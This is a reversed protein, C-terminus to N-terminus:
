FGGEDIEMTAAILVAKMKVELDIPFMTEYAKAEEDKKIIQGVKTKRTRSFIPLTDFDTCCWLCCLFPLRDICFVLEHKENEVYLLSQCLDCERRIYGIPKHDPLRVEIMTLDWDADCTCGHISMMSMVEQRQTNMVITSESDKKSTRLKLKRYIFLDEESSNQIVFEKTVEECAVHRYYSGKHHQWRKVEDRTKKFHLYDVQLLCDLGPPVTSQQWMTLLANAPSSHTRFTQGLM